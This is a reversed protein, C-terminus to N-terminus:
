LGISTFSDFEKQRALSKALFLPRPRRPFRELFGALRGIGPFRKLKLVAAIGNAPNRNKGNQVAVDSRLPSPAKPRVILKRIEVRRTRAFLPTASRKGGYDLNALKIEHRSVFDRPRVRRFVPEASAPSVKDCGAGVQTLMVECALIPQRHQM